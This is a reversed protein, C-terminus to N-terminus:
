KPRKRSLQVRAEKPKAAAAGKPVDARSAYTPYFGVEDDDSPFKLTVAEDLDSPYKRTARLGETVDIAEAKYPYFVLEDNDSPYKLTVAPPRATASKSSKASKSPKASKKTTKSASKRKASKYTFEAQGRGGSVKAESDPEPTQGELYRAFFPTVTEPQPAEHPTERHKRNKM